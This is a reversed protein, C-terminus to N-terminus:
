ISMVVGASEEGSLDLGGTVERVDIRPCDEVPIREAM